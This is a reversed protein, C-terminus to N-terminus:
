PIRAVICWGPAGHAPTSGRVLCADQVDCQVRMDVYIVRVTECGALDGGAAKQSKQLPSASVTTLQETTGPAVMREGGVPLASTGASPHAYQCSISQPGQDVLVQSIHM